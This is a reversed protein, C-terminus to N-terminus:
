RPTTSGTTDPDILPGGARPSGQPSAVAVPQSPQFESIPAKMCTPDYLVCNMMLAQLGLPPELVSSVAVAPQPTAFLMLGASVALATIDHYAM